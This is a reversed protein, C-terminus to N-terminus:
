GEGWDKVRSDLRRQARGVFPPWFRAEGAPYFVFNPGNKKFVLISRGNKGIM